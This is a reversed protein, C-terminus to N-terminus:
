RDEFVRELVKESYEFFRRLTKSSGEWLRRLVEESDELLRRLSKKSKQSGDSVNRHALQFIDVWLPHLYRVNSSM